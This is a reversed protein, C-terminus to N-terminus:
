LWDRLSGRGVHSLQPLKRIRTGSEFRRVALGALTVLQQGNTYAHVEGIATLM